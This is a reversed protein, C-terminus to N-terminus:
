INKKVKYNQRRGLFKDMEELSDFKNAHKTTDTTVDGLKVQTKERRKALRALSKDMKNIKKFFWYKTENIM